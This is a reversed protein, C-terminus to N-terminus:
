AYRKELEAKVNNIAAPREPKPVRCIKDYMWRWVEEADDPPYHEYDFREPFEEQVSIQLTTPNPYQPARPTSQQQAAEQADERIFNLRTFSEPLFKVYPAPKQAGSRFFEEIRSRYKYWSGANTIVSAYNCITEKLTQTDYEKLRDKICKEMAKNMKRHKIPSCKNWHDFVETIENNQKGECEGEESASLSASAYRTGVTTTKTHKTTLKKGTLDFIRQRLGDDVSFWEGGLRLHNFEEHLLSEDEITGRFSSHLKITPNGVKLEKIRSWPNVSFGIKVREGDFAFYVSGTRGSRLNPNNSHISARYKKYNVIKWKSEGARIIRRGESDQSKSSLDPAMLIDLSQGFSVPHLNSTRLLSKYTANVDGDPTSKAWFTIFLKM